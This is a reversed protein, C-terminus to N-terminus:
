DRKKVGIRLKKGGCGPKVWTVGKFMSCVRNWEEVMEKGGFVRSIDGETPQKEMKMNKAMM